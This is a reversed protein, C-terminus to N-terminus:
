IGAPLKNVIPKIAIFGIEQYNMQTRLHDLPYIGTTEARGIAFVRDSM